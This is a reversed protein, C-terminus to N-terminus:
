GDLCEDNAWMRRFKINRAGNSGFLQQMILVVAGWLRAIRPKCKGNKIEAIFKM